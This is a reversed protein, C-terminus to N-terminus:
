NYFKNILTKVTLFLGFPKVTKRPYQQQLNNLFLMMIQAVTFEIDSKTFVISKCYFKADVSYFFDTNNGGPKITMDLNATFRGAPGSNGTISVTIKSNPEIYTSWHKNLFICEKDDLKVLVESISKNYETREIYRCGPVLEELRKINQLAAFVEAKSIELTKTGELFISQINKM